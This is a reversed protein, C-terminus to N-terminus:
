TSCVEASGAMAYGEIWSKLATVRAYVGLADCNSSGFSVVGIQVHYDGLSTILPGGSDGMCAGNGAGEGACIMTDDINSPGYTNECVTNTVVPIDVEMLVLSQSGSNTTGWGTITAEAGAFLDVTSPLCIPRIRSSSFDVEGSLELLSVDHGNNWPNTIYSPHNIVQTVSFREETADTDYITHEGLLVQIQSPSTGDTCHAATLVWKSNVLSGGCFTRDGGYGVLGAQWPYELVETEQGNIIRTQRNVRGCKCDGTPTETPAPTTNIPGSTVATGADCWSTGSISATIWALQSNVRAYVGPYGASACGYGWSVVGIQRYISGDATVLPGGSDGQCSDKGGADFGACLMNDTISSGYGSQCASNSMTPVVVEQLSDPQSGGSSLTGWGSVIADVDEYLNTADPPCVPAVNNNDDFSLSTALKVLAVDNELTGSDYNPHMLIQEIAYKQTASSESSSSWSHEGVVVVNSTSMVDACHSATLIWRENIISAGCFANNSSASWALAVMWPYENVETEVGGVIRSARNVRGCTCTGTPTETPAPTAPTAGAPCWGSGSM